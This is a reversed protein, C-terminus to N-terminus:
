FAVAPGVRANGPSRVLLRYDGVGLDAPIGLSAAFGGQADTVTVGLLREHAHEASSLLVEIRLGAVGHSESSATGRVEISQGRLVSMTPEVDVRLELPARLDNELGSGDTRGEAAPSVRSAAESRSGSASARSPRSSDASAASMRAAAEAYARVYAEPRPLPDPVDPRYVPRERHSRPSLGRPSGGLDVRMWGRNEPLHVEVWAHAENQVFRAHVGLAQATIVFAYARHRCVGRQGMALDWYIDGTDRPPERSEEFSRFWHVLTELTRDFPAGRRLGLTAAFQLARREIARPVEPVEHILSDAPASPLETGFHTRPADSLFIIRVMRATPEDRVVFFNDAHDREFHLRTPPDTRVTLIRSEPSVSPFPAEHGSSFDIVINGWFLDRARGDPAPSQTGVPEIRTRPGRDAIALVPIGGTGIAIGDLATVRKFPTITPTFVEFYGVEGHLETIRDPRFSPSRRGVEELGRGDGPSAQMAREDGRLAGGEPAAIVEGDYVLARPEAGAWSTVLAGEDSSLHPVYEHRLPADARAIAVWVLVLATFTLAGRLRPMLVLM